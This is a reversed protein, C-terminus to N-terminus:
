CFVELARVRLNKGHLFDAAIEHDGLYHVLVTGETHIDANPPMAQICMKPVLKDTWSTNDSQLTIESFFNKGYIVQVMRDGDTDM